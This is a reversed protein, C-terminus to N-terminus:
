SPLLQATHSLRWQTDQLKRINVDRQSAPRMRRMCSVCSDAMLAAEEVAGEPKVTEPRHRKIRKGSDLLLASSCGWLLTHPPGAAERRVVSCSLILLTFLLFSFYLIVEKKFSFFVSRLNDKQQQPINTHLGHSVTVREEEEEDTKVTVERSWCLFCLFMKLIELDAHALLCTRLM